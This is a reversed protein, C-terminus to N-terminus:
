VIHSNINKKTNFELLKITMNSHDFLHIMFERKTKTLNLEVMYSLQKNNPGSHEYDDIFDGLSYFILGSNYIEYPIIHHASHGHFIDVGNNILNKAFSQINKDIKLVTNPGCHCSFITFDPEIANIKYKVYKLINQTDNNKIDVFHIGEKKKLKTTIGATWYDYHDSAGFVLIKIKKVTTLIPQKAILYHTGAGIHDINLQKLNDFTDLMGKKQFDLIHNNATNVITKKSFVKFVDKYKPNLKYNFIKDPWLKDSDTITMELNGIILDANNFFYISDGWISEYSPRLHTNLKDKFKDNYLRGLMIDGILLLKM